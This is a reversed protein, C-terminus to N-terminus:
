RAWARVKDLPTIQRAVQEFEPTGRKYIKTACPVAYKRDVKLNLEKQAEDSMLVPKTVRQRLESKARSVTYSSKRNQKNNAEFKRQNRRKAKVKCEECYYRVTSPPFTNTCGEWRCHSNFKGAM